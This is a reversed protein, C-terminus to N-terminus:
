YYTFKPKNNFFEESVPGHKPSGPGVFESNRKRARCNGALAALTRCM